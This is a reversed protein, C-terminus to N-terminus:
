FLAVFPVSVRSFIINQDEYPYDSRDREFEFFLLIQRKCEVLCPCVKIIDLLSAQRVCFIQLLKIVNDVDCRRVVSLNM